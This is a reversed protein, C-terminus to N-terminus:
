AVVAGGTDLVSIADSLNQPALKAYRMTMQITKHGMLQQVVQLSVGRQVLRSAFTHRLTHWVVDDGLGSLGKVREWPSRLWENQPFLPRGRSVLAARNELASAARKTLPISRWDHNKGDVILGGDRIDGERIRLLEGRRVGTDVSILIADYLVDYGLQQASSLVSNIEAESLWRMRWQTEKQRHITPKLPMVGYEHAVKCIKSVSALHRNVTANSCNKCEKLWLIYDDVLQTTIEEIPRNRGFFEIARCMTQYASKESRIGKWHMNYTRDAADNFSWSGTGNAKDKPIPKGLRLCERITEEWQLAEVQTPFAKRYRKGGVSVYAQWGSNRKTVSM